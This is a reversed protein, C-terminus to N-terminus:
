RGHRLMMRILATVARALPRSCQRIIRAPLGDVGGSAQDERLSELERRVLRERILVFNSMNSSPEVDVVQGEEIAHPLACKSAFVHALLDAEAQGDHVSQM